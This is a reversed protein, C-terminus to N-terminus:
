SQGPTLQGLLGAATQQQRGLLQMHRARIAQTAADNMNQAYNITGGLQPPSVPAGGVDPHWGNWAPLGAPTARFNRIADVGAQFGGPDHYNYM